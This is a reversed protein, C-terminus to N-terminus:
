PPQLIPTLEVSIAEYSCCTSFSCLLASAISREAVEETFAVAAPFSISETPIHISIHLALIHSLIM